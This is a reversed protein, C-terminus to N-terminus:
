APDIGPVAGPNGIGEARAGRPEPGAMVWRRPARGSVRAPVRGMSSEEWESRLLGLVACDRVGTPHRHWARLVGEPVFGLRELAAHSRGNEPNVLATVRDLGLSRFGLALVLAKSEANAGTGWHARGIWTGVVARRDRASLESFGTVGIPRDEGDVIVLELRRGTRRAAPLSEIWRLPEARDAYPGWSFFRTVEANRALDFLAEADRPAPYRLHLTPGRVVLGGDPRRAAGARSRAGPAAM